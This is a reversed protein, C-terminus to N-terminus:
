RRWLAGSPRTGQDSLRAGPGRGPERAASVRPWSQPLRRGAGEEQHRGFDDAATQGFSRGSPHQYPRIACGPRPAVRRGRFVLLLQPDGQARGKRVRDEVELRSIDDGLHQIETQRRRDVDLDGAMVRRVVKRDCALEFGPEALDLTGRIDVQMLDDVRELKKDIDVAGSRELETQGLRLDGVVDSLELKWTAGLKQVSRLSPM